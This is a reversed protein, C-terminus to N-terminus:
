ASGGLYAAIVQPHHRVTEPDGEVIVEGFDLVAIRDCIGSVLSMDHEILLLTLGDQRLQALLDSLARSEQANMGAAPEDLALLRPETALARAIELRRQDGYSLSMALDAARHELNVKRLMSLAYERQACEDAIFARTRLISALVSSQAHIYRGVLVNDLVSMQDFLRINQFTRAIGLRTLKHPPWRSPLVEGNFIRIGSDAYYFGTIINFLTTKGAGNPGIVGYVTGQPVCLSVQNLAVIGGFSRTVGQLQLLDTM